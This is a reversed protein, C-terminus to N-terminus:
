LLNELRWSLLLCKGRLGCHVIYYEYGCHFQGLYNIKFFESSPGLYLFIAAYNIPGM